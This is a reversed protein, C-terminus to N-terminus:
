IKFPNKELKNDNWTNKQMEIRWNVSNSINWCLLTMATALLFLNSSKATCKNKSSVHRCMCVYVHLWKDSMKARYTPYGFYNQIFIATLLWYWYLLFRKLLSIPQTRIMWCFQACYFFNLNESNKSSSLLSVM